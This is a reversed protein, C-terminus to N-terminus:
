VVAEGVLLARVAAVVETIPLRVDVEPVTADRELAEFQSALLSSDMFAHRRSVLRERILAFPGVLHVFRVGPCAGLLRRSSASLASCALVAQKGEGARRLILGVLKRLWPARDSETLGEGLGMKQRNEPPHHDDGDIFEWGLEEALRVGVTTKGCGSVGMLVLIM